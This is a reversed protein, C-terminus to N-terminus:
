NFTTKLNNNSNYLSVLGEWSTDPFAEHSQAEKAPQGTVQMAEQTDNNIWMLWILDKYKESM